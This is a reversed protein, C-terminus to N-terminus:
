HGMHQYLALAYLSLAIAALVIGTILARRRQRPNPTGSKAAAAKMRM